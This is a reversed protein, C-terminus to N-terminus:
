AARTEGTSLEGFSILAIILGIVINNWYLGSGLHVAPIFAAIIMWLGLLGATWGLAPKRGIMAFAPIAVLLGVVLDNWFNGMHGLALFPALILWLGLIGIITVTWVM